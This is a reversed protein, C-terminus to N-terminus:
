LNRFWISNKENLFSRNRKRKRECEICGFVVRQKHHLNEAVVLRITSGGGCALTFHPNHLYFYHVVGFLLSVFKKRSFGFRSFDRLPSSNM